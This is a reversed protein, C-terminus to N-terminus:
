VEVFAHLKPDHTAIRTLLADILDVPSLRRAAIESSLVHAPSLFINSTM